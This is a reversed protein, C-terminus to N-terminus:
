TVSHNNAEGASGLTGAATSRRSIADDIYAEVESAVWGVKNTSLSVRKPFKDQAELRDIQRRSQLVGLERLQVFTLIKPV